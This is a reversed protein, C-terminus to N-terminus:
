ETPMASSAHDSGLSQSLARVALATAVMPDDEKQLNSENQWRGDERQESCVAEVMAQQWGEPGGFTHFVRSSTARYYGRMATGFSEMPGGSLGPNVDTRHMAHLAALARRATEPRQEPPPEAIDGPSVARLALLGDCTASGYSLFGEGHRRGKNLQPDVPSYVFGGDAGRSRMVFRFALRFTPDGAEVGVSRLGELARRTMSLDVHGAHPPKPPTRWGMPFGGLATHARWGRIGTFQQSRLWSVLPAAATSWGEPRLRGLCSLALSTAYVPYDAAVGGFGIRGREDILGLVGVLARGITDPPVAVGEDRADLLANLVFPTLSQGGKLYGYTQSQYLGGTSQAGALWGVGRELAASAERVWTPAKPRPAPTGPTNPEPGPATAREFWQCGSMTLAICAGSLGTLASRRDLLTTRSAAEDDTQNTM